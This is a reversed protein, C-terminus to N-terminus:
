EDEVVNIIVKGKAHGTEQYRVAEMTESLPYSRDIVSVVKGAEILESLFELDSPIMKAIDSNRITQGKDGSNFMLRIMLKPAYANMLWYGNPALVRKIEGHSRNGVNDLVQDYLIGGQTLDERTYDVVRDAGISRVMEVNTTSCVGTVQAGFSKAIQVAFTGVGGSAGNILLNQGAQIDMQDRLCQLATLGAVPVAAAQEFTVNTPMHALEDASTCLYEAFAGRTIEGYVREGPKFRTVAAGVSEVVGAFDAGLRPDKPKLLGSVLRMFVPDARMFHWDLPNVSSAHIKVLVQDDTPSPKEVERLQLVEPPGYKEFLIAQMQTEKSRSYKPNHSVVTVQRFM